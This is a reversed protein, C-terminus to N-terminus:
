FIITNESGIKKGFYEGRMKVRSSKNGYGNLSFREEYHLNSTAEIIM